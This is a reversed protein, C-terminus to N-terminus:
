FFGCKGSAWGGAAAIFELDTYIRDILDALANSITTELVDVVDGGLLAVRGLMTGQQSEEALDTFHCM